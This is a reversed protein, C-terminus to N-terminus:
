QQLNKPMYGTASIFGSIGPMEQKGQIMERALVWIMNVHMTEDYLDAFSELRENLNEIESMGAPGTRQRKYYEPLTNNSIPDLSRKPRPNKPQQVIKQQEHRSHIDMNGTEQCYMGQATHISGANTNKNFNDWWSHLIGGPIPADPSKVINDNLLSGSQLIANALATEMELSYTFSKCHGM